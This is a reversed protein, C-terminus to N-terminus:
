EGGLLWPSQAGPPEARALGERTYGLLTGQSVMLPFFYFASATWYCLFSPWERVDDELGKLNNFFIFGFSLNPAKTTKKSVSTFYVGFHIHLSYM